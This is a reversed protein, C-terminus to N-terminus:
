EGSLRFLEVIITVAKKLDEVYINDELLHELRPGIGVVELNNIHSNYISEDTFIKKIEDVLAQEIMPM